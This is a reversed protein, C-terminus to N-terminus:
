FLVSHAGSGSNLDLGQVLVTCEVEVLVAPDVRRGVSIMGGGVVEVRDLGAALEEMADSLNCSSDVIRVFSHRVALYM